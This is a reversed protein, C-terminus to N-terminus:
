QISIRGTDEIKITKCDQPCTGNADRITIAASDASPRIITFGDPLSFTIHLNQNGSSLSDIEIGSEISIKDVEIDPPDGQYTNNRNMDGFIAYSNKDNKDFFLGYSYDPVQGASRVSALAMDQAKRINQVIEQAVIQVQYKKEGRRLNVILISSITTIIAIVVLLEFLTFGKNKFIKNKM